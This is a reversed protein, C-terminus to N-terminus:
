DIFASPILCEERMLCEVHAVAQHHGRGRRYAYSADEAHHEALPILVEAVATQLVRDRVTPVGLGRPAKGNARPIWLRLLPQPVYREAQVDGALSRLAFDVRAGFDFVTESDVGACGRNAYVKDRAAKLATMTLAQRLLSNMNLGGLAFTSGDPRLM